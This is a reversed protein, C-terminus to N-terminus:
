LIVAKCSLHIKVQSFSFAKSRYSGVNAAEVVADFPGHRCLCPAIGAYVM